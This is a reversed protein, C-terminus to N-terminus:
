SKGKYMHVEPLVSSVKTVHANMIVHLNPRNMAPRLFARATSWREGGMVNEQTPCYGINYPLDFPINCFFIFSKVVNLYLKTNRSFQNLCLIETLVVM